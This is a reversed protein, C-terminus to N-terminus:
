NLHAGRLKTLADLAPKAHGAANVLGCHPFAHPEADSWHAWQVTRVYPKCLALSAFTAAWDAQTAESHSGRWYGLNVRQDPDAHEAKAASSPYALTTQLPVGLLAYLDLLRSTDLLDRCYSGRPSVGIVFELDLAALKIGTRLLDDAFIFPTKSREQEALYDGWPQALGVIIELHPQVRRVADAIRLTLWILEEDRNALIGACNSGATIQWTRIRPQYRRVVAEVYETLFNSRSSIDDASEWLWHPLNCGAFDILPGGIIKLNHALAWDVLRDQAEWSFKGHTPEIREWPFPLSIANFTQQFSATLPAAPEDGHLRCSLWTDLKPQRAKRIEFVRDTYVQVLQHTAQCALKLAEDALSWAEADPVRMLAHGFACTAARIEAALTDPMLLGAMTWEAVQGRLSNIKGRALELTLHYPAPCERLTATSAMLLGAGDIRWPVQLNGSENVSRTAILRDGQLTAETPYPMNDQGGTVSARELEQRLAPDALSPPLQFNMAGM